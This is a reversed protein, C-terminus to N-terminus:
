FMVLRTLLDQLKFTISEIVAQTRRNPVAAFAAVNGTGQAGPAQALPWNPPEPEWPKTLAPCAAAVCAPVFNVTL